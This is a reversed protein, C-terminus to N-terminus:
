DPAPMHQKVPGAAFGGDLALEKPRLDLETLREGTQKLL